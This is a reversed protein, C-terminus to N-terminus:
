SELFKEAAAPSFEFYTLREVGDLGLNQMGLSAYFRESQVLSHLGCRGNMSEETSVAVAVGVLLRGLGAYRRQPQIEHRNWPATALNEIYVLPVYGSKELKAPKALDVIMLAEVSEGDVIAYIRQASASLGRHKDIWDWHSDPAGFLGQKVQWVDNTREHAPLSTYALTARTGAANLLPM